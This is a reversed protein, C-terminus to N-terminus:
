LADCADFFASDEYVGTGAVRLMNMGAERVQAVAVRCAEPTARLSVVDLPTWCAGRCFVPVGNVRLSFGGDTTDAEITRFGLRGLPVRRPASEGELQVLLQATYLAPTGHTHPWWLTPKEIAASVTFAGMPGPVLSARHTQGEHDLELVASMVRQGAPAELACALDVRGAGDAVSARLTLNSVQLGARRELWVDKWVGVAAAPPSWGPTRGLLTNRFWRLQQHEVMPARWRPRPRRQALLTDLAHFRLVLTNGGRHLRQGIEHECAVFMNTSRALLEGNLWVEAVGALGDFGLWLSSGDEPPSADFEVRYWWDDADFRRAPGDLSWRGVSRLAAAALAPEPLDIWERPQTLFDPFSGEAPAAACVQWGQVIRERSASAPRSAPTM